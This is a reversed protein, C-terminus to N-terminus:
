SGLGLEPVVALREGRDRGLEVVEHHAQEPGVAGSAGAAGADHDIPQVRDEAVLGAVLEPEGLTVEGARRDGTAIALELSGSAVDFLERATAAAAQEKLASLAGALRPQEALDRERGAQPAAAHDLDVRGFVVAAILRRAHDAALEDPDSRHDGFCDQRRQSCPEAREQGFEAVLRRLVGLEALGVGLQPVALHLGRQAVEYEPDRRTQREHDDDVVELVAISVGRHEDCRQRVLRAAM